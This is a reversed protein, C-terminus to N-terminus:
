PAHANRTRSSPPRIHRRPRAPVSVIIVVIPLATLVGVFLALKPSGLWIQIGAFNVAAVTLVWIAGFACVSLVFWHWGTRGKLHAGAAIMLGLLAAAAMHIM